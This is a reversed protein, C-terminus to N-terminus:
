GARGSPVVVSESALTSFAVPRHCNKGGIRSGKQKDREATCIREQRGAVREKEMSMWIEYVSFITRVDDSKMLTSNSERLREEHLPLGVAASGSFEALFRTVLDFIFAGAAM